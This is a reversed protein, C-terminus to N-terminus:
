SARGARELLERLEGALETSTAGRISSRAVIVVDNGPLSGGAVERFAARIIRRARNRRVAGGVKGGAVTAVDGDGPAVIVVVRDGRL